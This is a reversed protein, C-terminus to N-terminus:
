VAHALEIRAPPMREAVVIERNHLRNTMRWLRSTKRELGASAAESLQRSARLQRAGDDMRSIEESAPDTRKSDKEWNPATPGVESSRRCRRAFSQCCLRPDTRDSTLEAASRCRTHAM